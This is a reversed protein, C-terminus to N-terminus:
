SRTVVYEGCGAYEITVTSANGGRTVVLTLVGADFRPAETCGADYHLAQDTTVSASWVANERAWTSTGGITWTGSPLAQNRAISGPTDATFDSSWTRTHTTVSGNAHTFVTVFGTVDHQLADPNGNIERVGNRLASVIAGSVLRERTTLFDVFRVRRAWDLDTPTPDVVDIIGSRTITRLPLSLVCPPDFTFRVSDPVIDGDQDTPAPSATPRPTCQAGFPAFAAVSFSADGVTESSLIDGQADADDTVAEAAFEAQAQTLAGGSPGAGEDSCAALGLLLTSATAARWRILTSM